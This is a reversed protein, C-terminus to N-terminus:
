KKPLYKEMEKRLEIDVKIKPIKIKIYRVIFILWVVMIVLWVLMWFPAGLFSVTQVRFFIIVLGAFGISTLFYYFKNWINRLPVNKKNKKVMINASLGSLIIIIFFIYLVNSVGSLFPGPSLDFWYKIDLLNKLNNFFLSM